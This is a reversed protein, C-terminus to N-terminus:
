YLSMGQCFIGEVPVSCLATAFDCNAALIFSLGASDFNAYQFNSDKFTVHTFRGEAFASGM